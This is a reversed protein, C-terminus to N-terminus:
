VGNETDGTLKLVFANEPYDRNYVKQRWDYTTSDLQAQARGRSTYICLKRTRPTQLINVDDGDLEVIAYAHVKAM